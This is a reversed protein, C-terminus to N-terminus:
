RIPILLYVLSPEYNIKLQQKNKLDTGNKLISKCLPDALDFHCSILMKSILIRTQHVPQTSCSTAKGTNEDFLCDIERETNIGISFSM